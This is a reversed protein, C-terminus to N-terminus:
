HSDTIVEKKFTTQYNKFLNLKVRDPLAGYVLTGEDSMQADTESLAEFKSALSLSFTSLIVTLLMYKSLTKSAAAITPFMKAKYKLNRLYHSPASAATPTFTSILYASSPPLFSHTRQLYYHVKYICPIIFRPLQLSSSCKFMQIQHLVVFRYYRRRIRTRTRSNKRTTGVGMM